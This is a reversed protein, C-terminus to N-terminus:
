LQHHIVLDLETPTLLRELKEETVRTKVPRGDEPEISPLLPLDNNRRRPLLSRLKM